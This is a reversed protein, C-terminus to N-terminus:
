DHITLDQHCQAFELGVFCIRSQSCCSRKSRLHGLGAEHLARRMTNTSVVVNLHEGLAYRVDVVNDLGGVIIARACTQQQALTISRRHGERSLEM